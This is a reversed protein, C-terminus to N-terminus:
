ECSNSREGIADGVIRLMENGGVQLTGRASMSLVLGLAALLSLLRRM